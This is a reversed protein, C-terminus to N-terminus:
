ALNYLRKTMDLELGRKTREINSVRYVAVYEGRKLTGNEDRTARALAVKGAAKIAAIYEANDAARGEDCFHLGSLWVDLVIPLHEEIVRSGETIKVFWSGQTGRARATMNDEGKNNDKYRRSAAAM